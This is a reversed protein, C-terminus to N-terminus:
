HAYRIGPNIRASKLAIACATTEANQLIRKLVHCSFMGITSIGM